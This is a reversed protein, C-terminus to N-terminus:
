RALNTDDSEDQELLPGERASLPPQKPVTSLFVRYPRRTEKWFWRLLLMKKKPLLLALLVGKKNLAM